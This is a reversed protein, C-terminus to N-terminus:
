TPTASTSKPIYVLKAPHTSFTQSSLFHTVTRRPSVILDASIWACVSHVMRRKSLFSQPETRHLPLAFLGLAFTNTSSPECHVSSVRPYPTSQVLQLNPAKKWPSGCTM